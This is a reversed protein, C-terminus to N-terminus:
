VDSRKWKRLAVAECRHIHAVREDEESDYKAASVAYSAAMEEELKARRELERNVEHDAVSLYDPALFPRGEHMYITVTM